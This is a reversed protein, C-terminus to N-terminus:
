SSRGMPMGFKRRRRTSRRRPRASSIAAAGGGDHLARARPQRPLRAGDKVILPFKDIATVFVCRRACRRRARRRERAHGRGAADAGRSQLLAHRGAPGSRRARRRHGRAQALLHQDRARRGAEAQKEVRSFLKQKVELKEVIAEIVVDAHKCTSAAPIPSSARWRRMSARSPGSSASSCRGQRPSGKAIQAEDLDQLSVEMGAAVCWGAIDAGM